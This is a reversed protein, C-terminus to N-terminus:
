TRERRRERLTLDFYYLTLALAAYPVTFAYVVSGTIDIFNLSRDTVLLLVVGILPGSLFVLVDVFATIAFTRWWYGAVLESSRRLSGRADRDELAAAQAFLSWRIFRHIAFPIGVIVVTLLIAMAFQRFLAGGLARWRALAIRFAEPALIRRGKDLEGLVVAVAATTCTSAIATGIGGILLALLATVVGHRGDLAVFNKVATLHFLLWQVGAALVSIPVFILGMVLFTRADARYIRWASRLAQGIRRRMRIPERQVPRWATRRTAEGTGVAVLGVLLFFPWPHVIAWNYVVSGAAVAGCFFHTVSPGLTEQGPVTVSSERLGDAWEIPQSWVSKASPGTTGNNFGKERQGWRGHFALWSYPDAANDPVEPLVEVQSHVESSAKRTDDCGFGESPGRGLYLQRRFYTAQSGTAVYLVPHNGQRQLKRADWDAREGGAHQSLDVQYPATRLAAEATAADFDIQAMEWDGEHKGSFDNFTYWFWYQLALKGPHAPDTAVHAYVLPRTGASWKRFDQEYTCGPKLPNGPMDIYYGEGLGFLDMRTPARKVVKGDPGRLVVGPRGLIINVSTPRYPQGKACPKQQPEFGLIPAYKDALQQEASQAAHAASPALALLVAVLALERRM